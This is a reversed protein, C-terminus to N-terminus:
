PLADEFLARDSQIGYLHAELIAVALPAYHGYAASRVRQAVSPVFIYPSPSYALSLVRIIDDAFWIGEAFRRYMAFPAVNCLALMQQTKADRRLEFRISQGAFTADVHDQRETM